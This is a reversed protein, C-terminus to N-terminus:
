YNQGFYVDDEPAPIFFADDQRGLVGIKAERNLFRIVETRRYKSEQDPNEVGEGETLWLNVAQKIESPYEEWKEYYDRWIRRVKKDISRLVGDTNHMADPTPQALAATDLEPQQHGNATTDEPLAEHVTVPETPQGNNNVGNAALWHLKDLLAQVEPEAGALASLVLFTITRVGSLKDLVLSLSEDQDRFFWLGGVAKADADFRILEKPYSLKPALKPLKDPIAKRLKEPEESKPPNSGPVNVPMAQRRQALKLAKSPNPQKAAQSAPKVIIM